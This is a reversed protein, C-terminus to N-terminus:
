LRRRLLVSDLKPWRACTDDMLRNQFIVRCRSEHHKACVTMRGIGATESGNNNTDTSRIRYISEDIRRPLQLCRLDQTDLERALEASPCGGLIHNQAQSTLKCNAYTHIRAIAIYRRSINEFPPVPKMM